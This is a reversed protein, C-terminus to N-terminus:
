RGKYAWWWSAFRPGDTVWSRPTATTAAMTPNKPTSTCAHLVPVGTASARGCPKQSLENIWRDGSLPRLLTFWILM